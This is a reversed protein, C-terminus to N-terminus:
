ENDSRTIIFQIYVYGNKKLKYDIILHTPCSFQTHGTMVTRIQDCQEVGERM